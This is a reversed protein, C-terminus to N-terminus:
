PGVPMTPPDANSTKLPRWVRGGISTRRVSMQSRLHECISQPVKFVCKATQWAVFTYKFDRSSITHLCGQGKM